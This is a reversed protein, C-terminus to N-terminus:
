AGVNGEEAPPEESPPGYKALDSRVRSVHACDTGGGLLWAQCQCSFAHQGLQSVVEPRVHGRFRLDFVAFRKTMPPTHPDVAVFAYVFLHERRAKAAENRYRRSEAQVAAHEATDLGPM